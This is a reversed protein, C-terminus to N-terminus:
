QSSDDRIGDALPLWIVFNSGPLNTDDRGPSDVWIRRGHGEVIGKAIALGLGPGAGMFRTRATSHLVLEGIRGFKQFILEHDEPNIGVGTDSVSIEVAGFEADSLEPPIRCAGLIIQGGDLTFKIANAILNFLAKQLAERDAELMLLDEIPDITLELDREAAAHALRNVASQILGSVSLPIPALQLVQSDIKAVDLMSEVIFNLRDLGTDIGDMLKAHYTSDRLAPDDKLMHTYGQIVTLPIRLEHSAINVFESKAKDVRSLESIVDSRKQMAQEVNSNLQVLGAVLRANELPLSTQDALLGLLSLDNDSYPVSSIKASIALLGIWRQNAYVPLYVDMELSGLWEREAETASQFRHLLDIDYQTLPEHESNFYIAVPSDAALAYPAPVAGMSGFVAKLQYDPDGTETESQTVLFLYGRNNEMAESILGLVVTALQDLELINSIALSHDKITQNLDLDVRGLLTDVGSQIRTFIPWFLVALVTANVIAAVYPPQALLAQVVFQTVWFVIAYFVVMILTTLLYGLVRLSGLRIDPQRHTLIVYSALGASLLTLLTTLGALDLQFATGSLAALSLVFAWYTIRNRHLPHRIAGYNRVVLYVNAGLLGLWVMTAGNTLLAATGAALGLRLLMPPQAIDLLLLVPVPLLGAVWYPWRAVTLRLFQRTMVAHAFGLASLGYLPLRDWSLSQPRLDAWWLTALALWAGTAILYGGFFRGTSGAGQRRTLQIGAGLLLLSALFGLLSVVSLNM